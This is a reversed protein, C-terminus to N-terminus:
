LLADLDTEGIAADLTELCYSWPLREQELRIREGWTHAKLGQYLALEAPSLYNLTDSTSPKSETVCLHRFALLTSEDMLVVELRSFTRRALNLIALGHTDLDGWYLQRPARLAWPIESLQEVAYGMKMLVVTGVRDPLALGTELNETLLLMRPSIPLDALESLPAEIDELGGVLRRLEPCLLRMRLRSPRNRLGCITFFDLKDAQTPQERECRVALLLDRVLPKRKEIWKTDLGEVPIERLFRGSQPNELLWALLRRLREYDHEDYDAWVEFYSAVVKVKALAPWDKCMQRYRRSALGFREGHEALQAATTADAIELRAPVEQRGARPWSRLEWVVQLGTVRPEWARWSSVWARLEAPAAMVDMESPAGLNVTLPWRASDSEDQMMWSQHSTRFTDRVVAIATEPSLLSKRAM